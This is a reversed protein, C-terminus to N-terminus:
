VNAAGGPLVDYREESLAVGEWARTAEAGVVILIADVGPGAYEALIATRGVTPAGAGREEVNVPLRRRRVYRAGHSEIAAPPEGGPTAALDGGSMPALWLVDRTGDRVFLARDAVAEPAMFLAAIPRDETFLLAAALWAEDGEARRVVVDGLTCPFAAFSDSSTAPSVPAAGPDVRPASRRSRAARAVLRGILLGGAIVLADIAASV